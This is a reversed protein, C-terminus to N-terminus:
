TQRMWIWVHWDAAIWQVLTRNLEMWMVRCSFSVCFVGCHVGGCWSAPRCPDHMFVSNTHSFDPVNTKHESQAQWCLACQRHFHPWFYSLDLPAKNGIIVPQAKFLQLASHWASPSTKSNILLTESSEPWTHALLSKFQNFDINPAAKFPEIYNASAVKLQFTVIFLRFCLYM